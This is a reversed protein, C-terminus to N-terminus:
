IVLFKFINLIYKKMFIKSMHQYMSICSWNVKDQHKEIFPESLHQFQSIYSWDIKYEFEDISCKLDLKDIISQDEQKLAESHNKM